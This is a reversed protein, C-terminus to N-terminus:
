CNVIVKIRSTQLSKSKPNYTFISGEKCGIYLKGLTKNGSVSTLPYKCDVEHLLGGTELSFQRICADESGTILNLQNLYEATTTINRLLTSTLNLSIAYMWTVPQQHGLIRMSLHGTKMDYVHVTGEESSSFICPGNVFISKILTKHRELVLMRESHMPLANQSPDSSRSDSEMKLVDDKSENNNELVPPPLDTPLEKSDLLQCQDNTGLNNTVNEKSYSNLAPGGIAQQETAELKMYVNSDSVEESIIILNDARTDEESLCFLPPLQDKVDLSDSSLQPEPFSSFQDPSNWGTQQNGRCRSSELVPISFTELIQIPPPSLSNSTNAPQMTPLLSPTPSPAPNNSHFLPELAPLPSPTPQINTTMDVTVESSPHFTSTTKKTPPTEENDDLKRKKVCDVTLRVQNEPPHLPLELELDGIAVQVGNEELQQM